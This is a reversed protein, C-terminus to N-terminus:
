KSEEEKPVNGVYEYDTSNGGGKDISFEVEKYPDFNHHESLLVWTSWTAVYHTKM